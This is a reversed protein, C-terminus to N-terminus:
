GKLMDMLALWPPLPAVAFLLLPRSFAVLLGSWVYAPHLRRHAIWDFAVVGVVPLVSAAILVPPPLDLAIQIRAIAPMLLTLTAMVMLRKHWDSRRRMAVAWAVLGGFLATSALPLIAFVRVDAELPIPSAGGRLSNMAALFGLVVMASALTVGLLGLKKHLATQGASILTTQTLFLGIWITFVAGHVVLLPALPDADASRLYFSPAFGAFVIAAAAMAVLIYFVRRPASVAASSAMTTM